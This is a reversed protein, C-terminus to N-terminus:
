EDLEASDPGGQEIGYEVAKQVFKSLSDGAADSQETWREKRELTDLYVDVRREKITDTKGM